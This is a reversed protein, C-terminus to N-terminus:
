MAGITNVTTTILMRNIKYLAEIAGNKLDYERTRFATQVNRIM